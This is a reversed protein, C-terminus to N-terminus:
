LAQIALKLEELELEQEEVRKAADKLKMEYAEYLQLQPFLLVYPPYDMEVNKVNDVPNLERVPSNGTWSKVVSLETPNIASLYKVRECVKIATLPEETTTTLAFEKELQQRQLRNERKKQIEQKILSGLGFVLPLGTGVAEIINAFTNCTEQPNNLKVRALIGKGVITGSGLCECGEFPETSIYDAGGSTGDTYLVCTPDGTVSDRGTHMGHPKYLKCHEAKLKGYERVDRAVDEAADTIIELDM